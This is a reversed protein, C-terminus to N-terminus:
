RAASVALTVSRCVAGHPVLVLYQVRVRWVDRGPRRHCETCKSLQARLMDTYQWVFLYRVALGPRGGLMRVPCFTGPPYRRDTKGSCVLTFVLCKARPPRRAHTRSVEGPPYSREIMVSVKGRAAFDLHQVRALRCGTEPTRLEPM